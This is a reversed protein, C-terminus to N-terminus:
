RLISGSEGLVCFRSDPRGAGDLDKSGKATIFFSRLNRCRYSRRGALHGGPGAHQVCVGRDLCFQSAGRPADAEAVGEAWFAGDCGDGRWRAVAGRAACCFGRPPGRFPVKRLEGRCLHQNLKFPAQFPSQLCKQRRQSGILGGKACRGSPWREPGAPRVHGGGPGWPRRSEGGGLGVGHGGRAEQSLAQGCAGGSGWLALRGARGLVSRWRSCARTRTVHVDRSTSRKM